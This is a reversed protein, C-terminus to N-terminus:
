KIESPWLLNQEGERLRKIYPKVDDYTSVPVQQQFDEISYISNYGYQIGWTTKAAQSVLSTFVEKQVDFPYKKFLDIQHLRKVNVWSIISNLLPM